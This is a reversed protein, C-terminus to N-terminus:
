TRVESTRDFIKKLRMMSDNNEYLITITDWGYQTILDVYGSGLIVFFSYQHSKIQAKKGLGSMTEVDPHLSITYEDGKDKGFIRSSPHFNWRTDIFPVEVSDTISRIHDASAHSLPGFIAAIGRKLVNCTEREAAFSSIFIIHGQGSASIALIEYRNGAPVRVIEAHLRKGPLISPDRNVREVGYRFALEHKRDQFM